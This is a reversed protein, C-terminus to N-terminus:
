FFYAVCQGVYYFVGLEYAAPAYGEASLNRLLEIGTKDKQSIVLLVALRYTAEKSGHDSGRKLWYTALNSDKEVFKGLAYGWGLFIQAEIDAAEARGRYSNLEEPSWKAM